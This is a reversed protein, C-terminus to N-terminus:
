GFELTLGPQALLVEGAFVTGATAAAAGPDRADNIHTLVLRGARGDLAVRAADAANIHVTEAPPTDAGYSAESLLTDGPRVLPLLDDALSCDGSYVLGPAGSGAPTLRFAYSDPIHTVNRAEVAFGAVDFAGATLLQGPFDALFGAQAFLADFRPRLEAPGRLVPPQSGIAEYKLYHRLPVLDIHHDPHLHSVLIADITAPDRYQALAAFAGQGMDLVIARGDHEVLYCSSARGPRRTWAPACGVITLKVGLV